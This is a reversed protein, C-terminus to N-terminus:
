DYAPERFYFEMILSLILFSAAVWFIADIFLYVYRIQMATNAKAVVWVFPYGYYTTDAEGLAPPNEALGTILSTAIGVIVSLLLFKQKLSKKAKESV